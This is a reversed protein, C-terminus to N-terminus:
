SDGEWVYLVNSDEENGKGECEQESDEFGYEWEEMQMQAAELRRRSNYSRRAQCWGCSGHPRCTRDFRESRYYPKRHEKGHLIGQDLSM